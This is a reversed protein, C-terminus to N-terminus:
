IPVENSTIDGIRLSPNQQLRWQSIDGHSNLNLLIHPDPWLLARIHKKHSAILTRIGGQQISNQLDTFFEKSFYVPHGAQLIFHPVIILPIDHHINALSIMTHLLKKSFIPSDVPDILIGDSDKACEELVTKISGAYGLEPYYNSLIKTHFHALMERIDPDIVLTCPLTVFIQHLNISCIKQASYCIAYTGYLPTLAKHTGMRTSNGAAAIM